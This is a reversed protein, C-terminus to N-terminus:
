QHLLRHLCSRGASGALPTGPKLGMYAFASEAAARRSPDVAAPEPVRGSIGVVQSPDTGWTIQPELSACDLVVERDFTADDDSTCRAGIPWRAIGNRARRRM